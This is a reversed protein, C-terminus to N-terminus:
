QTLVSIITHPNNLVSVTRGTQVDVVELTLTMRDVPVGPGPPFLVKLCPALLRIDPGVAAYIDAPLTSRLTKYEPSVAAAFSVASGSSVDLAYRYVLAGSRDELQFEVPLTLPDGFHDTLEFNIVLAQGPALHLPGWHFMVEAPASPGPPTETSPGTLTQASVCPAVTLIVFAAFLATRVKKLM